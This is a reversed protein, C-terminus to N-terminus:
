NFDDLLTTGEEMNYNFIDSDHLNQLVEIDGELVSAINKNNVEIFNSENDSEETDSDDYINSNKDSKSYQGKEISKTPKNSSNLSNSSNHTQPSNSSNQTQPSNSSKHAQPSNELNHSRNLSSLNHMQPSSKVSNNHQDSNSLKNSQTLTSSNNQQYTNPSKFSNDSNKLNDSANNFNKELMQIKNKLDVIIENLKNENDKKSMYAKKLLNIQHKQEYKEKVLKKIENQMKEALLRNVTENKNTKTQTAIFRQYFGEREIILCDIFDDQLLRVNDKDVHYDIIKVMHEDVIKKIFNKVSQNIILRFVGIKQTFTLSNFYDIPVFDTTIRDICKSYSISAFGITIYYHHLGAISKKYLKPNNLGKLFANLAHKYGETVSSVAGSVKFKKAENYLHNYFIDVYYASIIEFNEITKPSYHNRDLIRDDM